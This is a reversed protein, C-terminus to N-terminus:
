NEGHKAKYKALYANLRPDTRQKQTVIEADVEDMIAFIVNCWIPLGDALAFCSTKGFIGDAVDDAFLDNIVARM